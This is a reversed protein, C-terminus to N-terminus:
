CCLWIPRGVYDEGVEQCRLTSPPVFSAVYYCYNRALVPSAPALVLAALVPFLYRM